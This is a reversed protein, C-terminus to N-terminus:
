ENSIKEVKQITISFQQMFQQIIPDSQIQDDLIKQEKLKQQKLNQAPTLLLNPAIKVELIIDQQLYNAIATQIKTQQNANFTSSNAPDLQLYWRNQTIKVLNCNDALNKTRGKLNLNPVLEQWKKALQEATLEHEQTQTENQNQIQNQAQDLTLNQEKQQL